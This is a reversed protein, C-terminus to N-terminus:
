REGEEIERTAVDLLWDCHARKEATTAKCNGCFFRHWLERPRWRDGDWWVPCIPGSM